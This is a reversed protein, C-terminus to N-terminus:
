LLPWSCQQAAQLANQPGRGRQWAATQQARARMCRHGSERARGGGRRHPWGDWLLCGEWSSGASNHHLIIWRPLRGTEAVAQRDAHSQRNCCFAHTHMSLYTKLARGALFSPVACSQLAHAQAPISRAPATGEPMWSSFSGQWHGQFNPFQWLSSNRFLHMLRARQGKARRCTDYGVSVCM